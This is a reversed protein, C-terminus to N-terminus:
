DLVIVVRCKRLFSLHESAHRLKSADSNSVVIISRELNKTKLGKVIIPNHQIRSDKQAASLDKTYASMGLQVAFERSAFASGYIEQGTEDVIKPAMAPKAESLGRADVIMGTYISSNAKLASAPTNVQVTGTSPPIPAPKVPRIPKISEIQKIDSPLVLQSFGGKLSMQLMVEVTGDSMYIVPEIPQLAQVMDVVKGRITENGSIINGVTTTSDISIEKIIQLLNQTAVIKAAKLAKLRAEPADLHKESPVAIGNAQIIGRTWNINGNAKQEIIEKSNMGYGSGSAVFLAFAVWGFMLCHKM